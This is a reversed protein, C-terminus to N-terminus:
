EILFDVGIIIIIPQNFPLKTPLLYNTYNM